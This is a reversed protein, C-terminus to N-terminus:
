APWHQWGSQCVSQWPAAEEDAVGVLLRVISIDEKRSVSVPLAVNEALRVFVMHPGGHFEIGFLVEREAKLLVNCRQGFSCCTAGDCRVPVLFDFALCVKRPVLGQILKGFSHAAEFLEHNREAM